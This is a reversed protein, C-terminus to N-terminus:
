NGPTLTLWTPGDTAMFGDANLICHSLGLGIRQQICVNKTAVGVRNLGVNFETRGITFWIAVTASSTDFYVMTKGPPLLASDGRRMLTKYDTPSGVFINGITAVQDTIVITQTIGTQNDITSWLSKYPAAQAAGAMAMVVLGARLFPFPM